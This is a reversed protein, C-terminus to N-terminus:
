PLRESKSAIPENANQIQRTGFLVVGIQKLLSDAVQTFHAGTDVLEGLQLTRTPDLPNRVMCKM